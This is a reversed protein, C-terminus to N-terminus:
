KAICSQVVNTRDLCDICNTRFVAKQTSIIEWESKNKKNPNTSVRAQFSQWASSEDRVLDLLKSINEYKM